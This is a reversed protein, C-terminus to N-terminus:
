VDHSLPLARALSTSATFPLQSFALMGVVVVVVVVVCGGSRAPLSALVRYEVALSADKGKTLHLRLM